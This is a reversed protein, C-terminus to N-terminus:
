IDEHYIFKRILEAVVGENNNAKTTYDCRQKVAEVANGAAVSLGAEELMALDNYNDGVAITESIDIGLLDSLEHLAVGKNVGLKNFEMYRNSSYSIECAGETVPKVFPELSMLYDVDTNQYLIKAIMADALFDISDEEPYIVELKQREVREKESPSLHYIYLDTNTYVHICVDQKLGFEFLEKVKAFELGQWKMIKEDKNEVLAGGNFSMTYEHPQDFLGLQKLEPRIQTYGRGTAPVFRVDKEVRAKQIWKINEEPVVHDDNLLTEDLDCAILKYM